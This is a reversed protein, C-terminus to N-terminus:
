PAIGERLGGLDDLTPLVEFLYDRSPLIYLDMPNRGRIASSALLFALYRGAGNPWPDGMGRGFFRVVANVSDPGELSAKLARAIAKQHRVYQNYVAPSVNLYRHPALGPVARQMAALNLGEIQVRRSLTLAEPEPPAVQGAYYRFFEQALMMRTKASEYPLFHRANLAMTPRGDVTGFVGARTDMSYWMQVSVAAPRGYIGEIRGVVADFDGRWRYSFQRLHEVPVQAAMANRAYIMKQGPSRDRYFLPDMQQSYGAEYAVWAEGTGWGVAGLFEPLHDEVGSVAHAPALPAIALAIALAARFWGLKM